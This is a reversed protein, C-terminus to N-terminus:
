KKPKRKKPVKQKPPQIQGAAILGLTEQMKEKTDEEGVVKYTKQMKSAYSFYEKDADNMEEAKIDGNLYQETKTAIQDNTYGTSQRYNQYAQAFSEENDMVLRNAKRSSAIGGAGEALSNGAHMGALAGKSSGTSAGLAALTGVTAIKASAAITGKIAPPLGDYAEEVSNVAKSAGAKIKGVAAVFKNTKRKAPQTGGLQTGGPQTEGPQTGGPQTEGPQTGGPQTGGPQTGGPQTGGPKGTKKGPDEMKPLKKTDINKKKDKEGRAKLMSIGTTIAAAGGIAEGLSSARFNFIERVIKEGKFIFLIMCISLVAAALTQQETLLNIATSAFILYIICHFPQILVNFVFEKLWANLAQSKGDGMKDISYTITILPSIVILFGITLMRKIYMILFLITIGVLIIYVLTSSVGVTFDVNWAQSAIQDLANDYQKGAESTQVNNRADNLVDVLVNNVGITFIMIYQLVFVLALSVVWDKFMKKYKAEDSAVTSMAMRIGIYVLVVMNLIISMVWIAYYWKQVNQKIVNNAKNSTEANFINANVLDIKDTLMGQITFWPILLTGEKVTSPAVITVLIRVTYVLPFFIIVIISAIWGGFNAKENVEKDTSGDETPVSVTGDGMIKDVTEKGAKEDKSSTVDSYNDGNKGALIYNPLLANILITFVLIISICKKM